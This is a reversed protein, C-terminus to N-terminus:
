SGGQGGGHTPATDGAGGDGVDEHSSPAARRAAAPQEPPASTPAGSATAASAAAGGAPQALRASYLANARPAREPAAVIRSHGFKLMPPVLVRLAPAALRTAARIIPLQLWLVALVKWHTVFPVWRLTPQLLRLLGCLMAYSLWYRLQTPTAGGTADGEDSSGGESERGSPRRRAPSTSRRAGGRGGSSGGEGEGEGGGGEASRAADDVADISRLMPGGLALLLLGVEAITSSSVGLLLTVCGGVLVGAEHVAESLAARRELGLATALLFELTQMIRAPPAPVLGRAITARRKLAPALLRYAVRLGRRGPLQLWVYGYCPLERLLPYRELMAPVFRGLLRPVLPTAHFLGVTLSVGAWVVWYRLCMQQDSTSGSLALLTRAAPLGTSLLPLATLMAELLRSRLGLREAIRSFAVCACAYGVHPLAAALARSRRQVSAHFLDVRRRAATRFRSVYQRRRFLRVLRWILILVLLVGCEAAIAQKPQAAFAQAAKISLRRVTPYAVVAGRSAAQSLHWLVKGWASLALLSAELAIRTSSMLNAMLLDDSASAATSTGDESAEQADDDVVSGAVPVTTSSAITTAQAPHAEGHQKPPPTTGSPTSQASCVESAEGDACTQAGIAAVCCLVFVVTPARM